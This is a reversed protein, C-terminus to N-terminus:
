KEYKNGYIDNSLKGASIEESNVQSSAQKPQDM